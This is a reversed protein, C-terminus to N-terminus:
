GSLLEKIAFYAPKPKNDEDFLLPADHQGTFDHIWSYKDNVGWQVLAKFNSCSMAEQLIKKYAMAQEQIREEFSGVGGQIQVDMETIHVELGLKGLRSIAMKVEGASPLDEALKASGLGVHMQLGVGHIPVGEKVMAELMKYMAEYKKNPVDTGWENYFLRVSPDAEHAWRFVKHIYNPGFNKFLFAGEDLGTSTLAENVVDWVYMQGKFHSVVTQIHNKILNEIQEKSLNAETLWKPLKKDWILTHGRIALNNDKAFSVIYDADDFTFVGQDAQLAWWKMANEPTVMNFEKALLEKYEKDTRLLEINVAAGIYLNKNEALSRLTIFKNEM